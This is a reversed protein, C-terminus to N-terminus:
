HFQRAGILWRTEATSPLILVVVQAKPLLLM